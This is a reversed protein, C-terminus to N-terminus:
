DDQQTANIDEQLLLEVSKNESLGMNVRRNHRYNIYFKVVGIFNIVLYFDIALIILKASADVICITM